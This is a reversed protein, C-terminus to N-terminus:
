TLFFILSSIKFGHILYMYKYVKFLSEESKAGEPFFFLDPFIIGNNLALIVVLTISFSICEQKPVVSHYPSSLLFAWSTFASATCGSSRLKIGVQSLLFSLSLQSCYERDDVHRGHCEQRWGEACVLTHVYTVFVCASYQLQLRTEWSGLHGRSISLATFAVKVKQM